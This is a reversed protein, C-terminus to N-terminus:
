ATKDILGLLCQAVRQAAQGDSRFEGLHPRKLALAADIAQPLAETSECGMSVGLQALSFGHRVAMSYELSVVPIGAVASELGVTSNQVVVADCALLVPHIPEQSPISFHVRAQDPLRELAQWQSPHYRVILALDERRRVLERLRLEIGAAFAYPDAGPPADPPLDAQGAWLIVKHRQWGMRERFAQAQELNAPAFMGDFGPNGTVVVEDADFGHSLVRQRVSASLVCTRDPRVPRHVYPDRSLGFLDIMGLTPIGAMAAAQLAAEESRPSNTAVVADPRLEALVRRMFALPLFGRRGKEAYHRAAEDAGMQEILSLYNIGLYAVTEEASVDPSTNGESLQKGWHLAAERDVLHLLDKYGLAPVGAALARKHGTTLALLRCQLDPRTRRLAEIVPLVMAIHGGGYAVFLITRTASM